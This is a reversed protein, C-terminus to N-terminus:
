IIKEFIEDKPTKIKNMSEHFKHCQIKPEQQM